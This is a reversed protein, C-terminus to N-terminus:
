TSRFQNQSQPLVESATHQSSVGLTEKGGTQPPPPPEVDRAGRKQRALFMPCKAERLLTGDQRTEM